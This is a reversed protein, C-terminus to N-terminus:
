PIGLQQKAVDTLLSQLVGLTVTQLSKGASALRQKARQWTTDDKAADLFEHGAWTLHRIMAEPSDSGRNTVDIAEALGADNLLWSHYGVQEDSYGDITIERPAFGHEHQEVALLLKRILEMDRQM